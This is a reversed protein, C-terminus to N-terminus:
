LDVKITFGLYVMFSYWYGHGFYVMFSVVIFWYCLLVDVLNVSVIIGHAPTLGV